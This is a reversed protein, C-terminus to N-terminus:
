RGEGEGGRPPRRDDADFTSQLELFRARLQRAYALPSASRPPEFALVAALAACAAAGHMATFLVSGRGRQADTLLRFFATAVPVAAAFLLTGGATLARAPLRRLRVLRATMGERRATSIPTALSDNM